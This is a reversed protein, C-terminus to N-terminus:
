RAIGFLAEVRAKQAADMKLLPPWTTPLRKIYKTFRMQGMDWLDPM